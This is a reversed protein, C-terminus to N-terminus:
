GISPFHSPLGSRVSAGRDVAKGKGKKTPSPGARPVVVFSGDVEEHSAHRGERRATLGCGSQLSLARNKGNAQPAHTRKSYWLWSSSCLSRILCTGVYRKRASKEVESMTLGMREAEEGATEGEEELRRKGRGEGIRLGQEVKDRAAVETTKRLSGGDRIMHEGATVHSVLPTLRSRELSFRLRLTSLFDKQIRDRLSQTRASATRREHSTLLRSASFTPLLSASELEYNEEIAALEAATAEDASADQEEDVDMEREKKGRGKVKKGGGRTPGAMRSDQSGDVSEARSATAAASVSDGGNSVVDFPNYTAGRGSPSAPGVSNAKASAKLAASTTSSPTPARRATTKKKPPM